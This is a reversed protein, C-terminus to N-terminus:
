YLLDAIIQAEAQSGAPCFYTYSEGAQVFCFWFCDLSKGIPMIILRDNDLEKLIDNDDAPINFLYLSEGKIPARPHLDIFSFYEVGDICIKGHMEGPKWLHRNWSVDLKLELVDGELTCAYVEGQYHLPRLAYALGSGLLIAALLLLLSIGLIFKQKRKM